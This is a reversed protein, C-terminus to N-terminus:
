RGKSYYFVLGVAAVGLLVYLMYNDTYAGTPNPDWPNATRQQRLRDGWKSYALRRLPIVTDDTTDIPM